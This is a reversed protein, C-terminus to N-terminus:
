KNNDDKKLDDIEKQKQQGLKKYYSPDPLGREKRLKQHYKYLKSEHEEPVSKKYPKGQPDKDWRVANPTQLTQAGQGQSLDKAIEKEDFPKPISGMVKDFADRASSGMSVIKDTFNEAMGVDINRKQLESQLAQLKNPNRAIANRIEGAVKSPVKSLVQNVIQDVQSHQQGVTPDKPAKHKVAPEDYEDSDLRDLYAEYEERRQMWRQANKVLQPADLYQGIKALIPPLEQSINKFSRELEIKGNIERGRLFEQLDVTRKSNYKCLDYLENHLKNVYFKQIWRGGVGAAVMNFGRNIEGHNAHYKKAMFKMTDYVMGVPEGIDNTIAKITTPLSTSEGLEQEPEVAKKKKAVPKKAAAKAAYPALYHRVLEFFSHGSVQTDADVGAAQEFADRDEAAVAARLATASSLRPTPVPNIHTFHYHGHTNKSGNYQVLTKIVWEEDTYVNLTVDGYKEYVKSALTLWSTEPVIHSAVEPWIAKMAEVKVDYPLPDKPGVTSENTGVYWHKNESAMEWAAKHGKHPPNFRGFIIGVSGKSEFIQRLKM